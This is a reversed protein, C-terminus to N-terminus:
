SLWRQAMGIELVDSACRPGGANGSTPAVAHTKRKAKNSVSMCGAVARSLVAEMEVLSRYCEHETFTTLSAKRLAKPPARLNKENILKLLLYHLWMVNTLPRYPRWSNTNHNRMMRYIDFQYNGKGEFIEEDPVTFHLGNAEGTEMRSLGLDIVTIKVGHSDHDMPIKRGKSVRPPESDTVVKVLIQGWHLDRHEFHVMDEAESLARTVQWFISCAQSWFKKSSPDFAFTELDPGGNPLVIIAYLQSVAFGDPRVSESGKKEDYKDWLNLLVSPYKGRVVYTRLLQVFGECMEGMARTVIIERLVDKADSPAPVDEDNMIAESAEEDRLPVVKLVVDGIGFVESFSAEGIKQFAAAKKSTKKSPLPSTGVGGHSTQVIPDFPFMDIFASFEYPISQSCAELLPKLYAPPSAEHGDPVSGIHGAIAGLTNPSLALQGFDVSLDEDLDIPTTPSPPSPAAPLGSHFARSRFPTSVRSNRRVDRRALPSFHIANHQPLRFPQLVPRSPPAPIAPKPPPLAVVEVEPPEPPAVVAKKRSKAPLHRPSQASDSASAIDIKPLPPGIIDIDSDEDSSIIVRNKNPQSSKTRVRALPVYEDSDSDDLLVIADQRSRGSPKSVASPLPYKSNMQVEPRSVRREQKVPKDHEDFLTIEVDVVPSASKLSRVVTKKKPPTGKGIAAPKKKKMGPLPVAKKGKESTAHVNSSVVSLPKRPPEEKESSEGESSEIHKQAKRSAPKGCHAQVEVEPSSPPSPVPLPKTKRRREPFKYPGSSASSTTRSNVAPVDVPLRVYEDRTDSVNVIRHSRKGYAYVQKTRTGLM